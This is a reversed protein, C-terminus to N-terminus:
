WAFGRAGRSAMRVGVDYVISAANRYGDLIDALADVFAHIDPEDIVLPPELKLVDWDHATPQVVFGAELMKVAIWQGIVPPPALRGLKPAVEALKAVLGRAVTTVASGLEVGVLLGRGRIERVLPHGALRKDLAARLVDGLREARAPLDDRTTIELTALAAACALPNGAYTSGHLDFRDPTGYAKDYLESSCLTAGVPVIGGGLSKALVLIDPRCSDDFAFMSGTRGLGTQVEDFVLQTGHRTCLERAAALYGAPPMIVGAEAQIPEVVFAAHKNTVLAKTLAEIEGFPVATAPLLPEFPMRMRPAGMLSLTGLSLGHFGGKCYLIGARRTAARALKIAAEVAEAGTSSLQVIDYGTLAALRTALATEHPTPGTHCVHVPQAALADTIARIVEPHNHGLNTAGFGALFDVYSTGTEDVLRCGEGKVWVRGYGLVGLLKSFTPNVHKAFGARVDDTVESPM